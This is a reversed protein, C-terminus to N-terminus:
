LLLGAFIESHRCYYKGVASGFSFSLSFKVCAESCTHLTEDCGTCKVTLGEVHSYYEIGKIRMFCEWLDVGGGEFHTVLTGRCVM